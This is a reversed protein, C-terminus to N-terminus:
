PLRKRVSFLRTKEPVQSRIPFRVPMAKRGFEPRRQLFQHRSSAQPGHRGAQRIDFRRVVGEANGQASAVAGTHFRQFDTCHDVAGAGFTVHAPEAVWQNAVQETAAQGVQSAAPSPM